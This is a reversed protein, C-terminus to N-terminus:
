IGIAILAQEERLSQADAKFQFQTASFRCASERLQSRQTNGFFLALIDLRDADKLLEELDLLHM